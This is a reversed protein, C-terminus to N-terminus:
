FLIWFWGNFSLMFFFIMLLKAVMEKIIKGKMLYYVWLIQINFHHYELLLLTFLHGLISKYSIFNALFRKRGKLSVVVLVIISQFMLWSQGRTGFKRNNVLLSKMAHFKVKQQIHTAAQNLEIDEVEEEWAVKLCSVFRLCHSKFYRKGAYSKFFKLPKLSAPPIHNFYSIM